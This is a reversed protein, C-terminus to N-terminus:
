SVLLFASLFVGFLCVFGRVFFLCWCFDGCVNRRFVGMGEMIVKLFWSKKKLKVFSGVTGKKM